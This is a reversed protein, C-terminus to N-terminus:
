AGYGGDVDRVAGTLYSAEPSARFAVAAALEEPRGYRGLATSARQNTLGSM